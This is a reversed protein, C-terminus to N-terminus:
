ETGGLNLAFGLALDVLQTTNWASGQRGILYHYRVDLRLSVSPSLFLRAGLGGQPGPKYTDKFKGVTGGVVFFVEAHSVARNVFSLKGYFPTVMAATSAMWQLEDFKTENVGFDKVLQDHLGTHLRFSYSARFIEWAVSDNFHLGYGAVPGVGKYFADLPLFGASAFIEHDMRYKRKQVAALKGPDESADDARAAAAPALLGALLIVATAQARM